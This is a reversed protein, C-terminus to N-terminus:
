RAPMYPLGAAPWSASVSARLARAARDASEVRSQQLTVAVLLDDGALPLVFIGGRAVDLVLRVLRESRMVELLSRFRRFQQDVQSVVYRYGRRRAAPSVRQFFPALEPTDFIDAAWLLEDRHYIAIYHLYDPHLARRCEATVPDPLPGHRGQTVTVPAGDAPASGGQYPQWLEGSQERERFGGWDLSPSGIRAASSAGLVALRADAQGVTGQDGNFTLGFFSQGLVKLIFFLAGNEGQLVARILTGNDLPACAEDLQIIALSLQRAAKEVAPITAEGDPWRGPAGLAFDQIGYTFHAVYDLGIRENVAARSDEIDQNYAPGAHEARWLRSDDSASGTLSTM